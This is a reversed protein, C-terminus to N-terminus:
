WTAWLGLSFDVVSGVVPRSRFMRSTGFLDELCEEEDEEDLCWEEDEECWLDLLLLLLCEEDEEDLCWEELLRSLSLSWWRDEREERLDRVTSM